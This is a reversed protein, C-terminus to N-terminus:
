TYEGRPKMPFIYHPKSIFGCFQCTGYDNMKFSFNNCTECWIAAEHRWHYLRKDRREPTDYTKNSLVCLVGEKVMRNLDRKTLGNIRGRLTEFSLYGEEEIENVAFDQKQEYTYEGTYKM